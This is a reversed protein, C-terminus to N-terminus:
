VQVQVEMRMLPLIYLPMALFIFMDNFEGSKLIENVNKIDEIPISDSHNAFPYVHVSPQSSTNRTQATPTSVSSLHSDSQSLSAKDSKKDPNEAWYFLKLQIADLSIAIRAKVGGNQQPIPYGIKYLIFVARHADLLCAMM